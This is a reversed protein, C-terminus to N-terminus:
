AAAIAAASKKSAGRALFGLGVFGAILMTWTSPLPTSSVSVDTFVFQEDTYNYDPGNPGLIDEFGVYTGSPVATSIGGSYPGGAVYPASYVHNIGDSNLSSDSYLTYFQPSTSGLTNVNIFFTLADGANVSGFTIEDGSSSTHNDLGTTGLQVGNDLLGVQEDYSAGSGQYFYASITGSATATFSYTEPNETGVNNYPIVTGAQAGSAMPLPALIGGVVAATVAAINNNLLTKV